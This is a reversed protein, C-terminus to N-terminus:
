CELCVMLARVDVSWKRKVEGKVFQNTGPLSLLCSELSLVERKLQSIRLHILEESMWNQFYAACICSLYKDLWMVVFDKWDRIAQYYVFLFLASSLSM